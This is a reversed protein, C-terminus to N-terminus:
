IHDISVYRALESWFNKRAAQSKGSFYIKAIPKYSSHKTKHWFRIITQRTIKLAREIASFSFGSELMMMAALRKALMIKETPTILEKFFWRLENLSATELVADALQDNIKAFVKKKLKRRSVHPM